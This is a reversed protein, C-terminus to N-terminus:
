YHTAALPIADGVLVTASGINTSKHDSSFPLFLKLLKPDIYAFRFESTVPESLQIYVVIGMEHSIINIQFVILKM